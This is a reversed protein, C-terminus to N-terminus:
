SNQQLKRISAVASESVKSVLEVRLHYQSVESQVRLVETLQHLKAHPSTASAPARQLQTLLRDLVSGWGATSGQVGTPDPARSVPATRHSALSAISLPM